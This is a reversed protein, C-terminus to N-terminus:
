DAGWFAPINSVHDLEKGGWPSAILQPKEGVQEMGLQPPSGCTHIHQYLGKSKNETVRLKGKGTLM